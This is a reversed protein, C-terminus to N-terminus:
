KRASKRKQGKSTKKESNEMATKRKQEDVDKKQRAQMKEPGPKLLKKNKEKEIPLKQKKGVDPRLKARQEEPVKGVRGQSSRGRALPRIVSLAAGAATIEPRRATREMHREGPGSMSPDTSSPQDMPSFAKQSGQWEIRVLTPEIAVVKADEIEDGVKYWRDNILAESGLIGLVATVPHQKPPAAAFLNRKTLEDAIARSKAIHEHLDNAHPKSSALHERVVNEVNAWTSFFCAVKILILLGFCVSAALLVASLFGAERSVTGGPSGLPPRVYGREAGNSTSGTM